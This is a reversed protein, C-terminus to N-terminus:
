TRLYSGDMATFASQESLERQMMSIQRGLFDASWQLRRLRVFMGCDSVMRTFASAYVGLVFFEKPTQDQQVM